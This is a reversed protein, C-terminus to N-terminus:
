TFIESYKALFTEADDSIQMNKVLYLNLSQSTIEILIRFKM